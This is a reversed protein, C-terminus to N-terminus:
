WRPKAPILSYEVEPRYIVSITDASITKHAILMLDTQVDRDVNEAEKACKKAWESCDVAVNMVHLRSTNDQYMGVCRPKLFKPKLREWEFEANIAADLITHLENATSEQGSTITTTSRARVIVPYFIFDESSRAFIHMKYSKIRVTMGSNGALAAIVAELNEINLTEAYQGATNIVM